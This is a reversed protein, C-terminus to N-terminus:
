GDNAIEAQSMAAGYAADEARAADRQGKGVRM